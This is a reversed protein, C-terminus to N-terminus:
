SDTFKSGPFIAEVHQTWGTVDRKFPVDGGTNKIWLTLTLGHEFSQTCTSCTRLSCDCGFRAGYTMVNKYTADDDDVDTM